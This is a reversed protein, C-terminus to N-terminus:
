PARLEPVERGPTWPVGAAELRQELAPLEVDLLEHLRGRERGLQHEAIELSRRHTPTPGYTSYENGTRVVRLRGAVSPAAPEGSRAMTRNGFLAAEVEFLRAELGRVDADLSDPAVTSRQLVRRLTRLREFGADMAARAGSIARNAAAVRRLFAAVDEPKAGPLTGERMRVVEFAVPGALETVVGGARQSLTVTYSGPAALFGSGASEEDDEWEPKAGEADTSPYRLDWAVRHFGAKAPGDLRRVVAGSADRVTLLIAPGEERREREIAEWGPYPTDKGDKELEKEAERRAVKLSMLEAALHYTFVAGFPPNPAVYYAAGLSARDRDGLPRRPVYWWAKRVPFLTAERQLSEESVERLPSYDDLIFFGRGFSAGVLDGERRQIALDRFPITPVGGSLEVWRKGGDITFFVGLETGAFLLGPKVHDQVLRWVLHRDPLDGAISTWTRGRDSSKLLYPKFDGAKHNDLAVYVTNADFIDAKIDNVFATAPVAPLSGVPIARWSGGADESLQILGDDTGAWLLGQAKPSEALSTITNYSSMALLDWPADFSWVRGMLALLMRDQKRTLDGSVPKWSDGRDNSRWVRQSAYYLRTPSHPSILIPSDWNFREPPDGPEGQPQIYVIEGTKRDHRVLNGQQWESYVIEPNGPECAPQHGDAFLTLFWDRNRIGNVTDTRSPGGQTSNDQTGGYVNYFPADDDVAVKYFQTVPLNAVFRWTEGLDFSEYLGGDTGALLWDPDSSNFALAHNDSHKDAETMRRFTKGGDDSVRMRVDMLYVRDFAHPSAYLEQYYHPGTGGSVTDSMKKWSEGRDASRWFGGTRRELEIAA